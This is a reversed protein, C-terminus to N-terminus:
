DSSDTSQLKVVNLSDAIERLQVLLAERMMPFEGRAPMEIRIYDRRQSWAPVDQYFNDPRKACLRRLGERVTDINQQALTQFGVWLPGGYAEWLRLDYGFWVPVQGIAFYRIYGTTGGGPGFGAISAWDERIGESIAGDILDRFRNKNSEGLEALDSSPAQFANLAEYEVVGQLEAISRLTSEEVEEEARAALKRLLREWSVLMLASSESVSTRKLGETATEENVTFADAGQVLEKMEAWLSELRRKPAVVLLVSSRDKPLHKLYQVPQNKTLMADFKAEILVHREGDQDLCALDPTAGTEEVAQTQVLRIPSVDAGGERLIEELAQMASESGNLIYGLAEVALDEFSGRLMWAVHALVTPSSAAM